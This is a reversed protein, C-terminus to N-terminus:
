DMNLKNKDIIYTLFHDLNIKQFYNGLKGTANTSSITEKGHTNKGGAGYNVHGYTHLSIEPSQM